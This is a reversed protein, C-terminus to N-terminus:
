AAILLAARDSMAEALTPRDGPLPECPLLVSRYDEDCVNEVVPLRELLEINM